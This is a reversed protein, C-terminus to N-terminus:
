TKGDKGWKAKRKNRQLKEVTRKLRLQLIETLKMVLGSSALIIGTM